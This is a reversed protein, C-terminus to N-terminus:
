IGDCSKNVFHIIGSEFEAECHKSAKLGDMM